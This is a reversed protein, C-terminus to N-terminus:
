DSNKGDLLGKAYSLSTLLEERLALGAQASIAELNLNRSALFDDVQDEPLSELAQQDPESLQEMIQLIIKDELMNQIKEAYAQQEEPTLNTLGIQELFALLEQPIPNTM